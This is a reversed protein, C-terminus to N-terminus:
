RSARSSPTSHARRKEKHFSAVAGDRTRLLRSSWTLNDQAHRWQALRVVLKTVATLVGLATRVPFVVAPSSDASNAPRLDRAPANAAYSRVAEATLAIADPLSASATLFSPLGASLDQRYDIVDDIIQCQMLIRFLMEVDHDDQTALIDEARCAANLAIAADTTAALRAVAERYARVEDFRQDDGGIAPRRSELERLQRLYEDICVGLGAAVLQQQFSRYDAECLTKGDWAANACGQFDIFWALERIRKRTLPQAHRLVHLTDLAVIALVRLPTRPTARFFLPVARLLCTVFALSARVPGVSGVSQPRAGQRRLRDPESM